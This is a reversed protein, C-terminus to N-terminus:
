DYTESFRNEGNFRWSIVCFLLFNYSRVIKGAGGITRFLFNEDDDVKRNSRSGLEETCWLIRFSHYFRDLVICLLWYEDNGFSGRENKTRGITRRYNDFRSQTEDPWLGTEFSPSFMPDFSVRRRCRSEREWPGTCFDLFNAQQFTTM